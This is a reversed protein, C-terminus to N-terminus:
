YLICKGCLGLVLLDIIRVQEMVKMGSVHYCAIYWKMIAVHYHVNSFWFHAFFTDGLPAKEVTSICFDHNTGLFLGTTISLM